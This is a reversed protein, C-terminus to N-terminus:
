RLLAEALVFDDPTTIKMNRVSDPVLTVPYGAREVLTAEDTVRGVADGVALYIEDLVERPFGQPTQARWLGARPVTEVVTGRQDARKLTDSVPVAAVASVGARVIRIIEEIIAPDVFPRAADHVLVITCGASLAAVGNRVSEARTDGGCVLQVRGHAAEALWPPPGALRAAPVPIVIEKVAELFAFPRLSRLLMPIGGLELFQKPLEGGMREGRGGSPIVVGVDPASDNSSTQSM